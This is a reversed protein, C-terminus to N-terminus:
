RGGASKWGAGHWGPLQGYGSSRYSRAPASYMMSRGAPVVSTTPEYSYSRYGTAAQATAVPAAPMAAM